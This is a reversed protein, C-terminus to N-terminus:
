VGLERRQGGLQLVHLLGKDLALENPVHVVSCAVLCLAALL